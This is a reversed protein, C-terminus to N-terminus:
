SQDSWFLTAPFKDFNQRQKTSEPHHVYVAQFHRQSRACVTVCARDGGGLFSLENNNIGFSRLRDSPRLGEIM